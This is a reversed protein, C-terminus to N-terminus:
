KKLEIKIDKQGPKIATRKDQGQPGTKDLADGSPSYRATITFPGEFPTGPMMANAGSLTFAYPFKPSPIRLVAAPPGGAEGAKRAFIFLIGNAAITKELGADLTVTGSVEKAPEGFASMTFVAAFMVFINRM